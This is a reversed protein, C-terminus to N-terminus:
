CDKPKEGWVPVCDTASGLQLGPRAAMFPELTRWAQKEARSAMAMLSAFRDGDAIRQGGVTVEQRVTANRSALSRLLHAGALLTEGLVLAVPPSQVDVGSDLRRLVEEHADDISGTVLATPFVAADEVQFKLRVDAETAFNAM